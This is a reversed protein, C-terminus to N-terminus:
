HIPRTNDYRFVLHAPRPASLPARSSIELDGWGTGLLASGTNQNNAINYIQLGGTGINRLIMDSEGPRSSFDGVGSFQWELGVTGMFDTGTIQNNAINYVQLGGTDVNRLIM